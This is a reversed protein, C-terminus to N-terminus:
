RQELLHLGHSDPSFIEHQPYVTACQPNILCDVAITQQGMGRLAVKGSSSKSDSATASVAHGRSLTTYVLSQVLEM